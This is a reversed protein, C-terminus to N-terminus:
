APNVFRPGCTAPQARVECLGLHLGLGSSWLSSSPSSLPSCAPARLVVALLLGLAFALTRRLVLWSPAAARASPLAPRRPGPPHAPRNRRPRRPRRLHRGFGPPGCCRRALAGDGRVVVGAIGRRCGRRVSSSIWASSRQSGSSSLGGAGATPGATAADALRLTLLSALRSCRRSIAWCVRAQSNSRSSPISSAPRSARTMTFGM